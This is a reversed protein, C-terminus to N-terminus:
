AHRILEDFSISMHSTDFVCKGGKILLAQPSQHEVAFDKAIQNSIPREAILDLYYPKLGKSKEDDWNRELRSLTTASISCRTSHKFILVPVSLSEQKITDLQEIDTLKQWNM